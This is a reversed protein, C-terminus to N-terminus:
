REGRLEARHDPRRAGLGGGPRPRVVGERIVELLQEAARRFSFVGARALGAESMAELDTQSDILVRLGDSLSTADGTRFYRAAAGGVEPLSSSDSSLVPCGCAMSELV